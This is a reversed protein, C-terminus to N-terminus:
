PLPRRTQWERDGFAVAIQLEGAHALFRMRCPVGAAGPPRAAGVLTVLEDVVKDGYGVRTLVSRALERMMDDAPGSGSLQLALVFEDVV